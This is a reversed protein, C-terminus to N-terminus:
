NTSSDGEHMYSLSGFYNILRAGETVNMNYKSGYTWDNLIEDAWDVDPYLYPFEQTKYYNLIKEPVILGWNREEFPLENITACNRYKIAEYLGLREPIRSISSMSLEYM